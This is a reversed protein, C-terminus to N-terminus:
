EQQITARSLLFAFVKENILSGAIMNRARDLDIKKPDSVRQLQLELASQIEDVSASLKEAGAIAHLVAQMDVQEKARPKLEARFVDQTKKISALYPGLEMGQQHLQADFNGILADLQQEIMKESAHIQSTAIVQKLLDLRIREQEHQEKEMTLGDRVEGRLQELSSFTGLKKAFEDNLETVGRSKAIDNLVKTVEEDTVFLKKKTVVLGSYNGLTIAPYLLLDVSFVLEAPTNKKIAFNEQEFVELKEKAIVRALSKEIAIQLGEERLRAEDIHKRLVDPPVKGPRFGDIEASTALRQAAEQIYEKLDQADLEVTVQRTTQDVIRIASTM